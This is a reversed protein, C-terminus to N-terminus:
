SYNGYAGRKWSEHIDFYQSTPLCFKIMKIKVVLLYPIYLCNLGVQRPQGSLSSRFHSGWSFLLRRVFQTKVKIAGDGDDVTPPASDIRPICRLVSRMMICRYFLRELCHYFLRESEGFHRIKGPAEITRARM